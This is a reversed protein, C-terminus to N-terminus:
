TDHGQVAKESTYFWTWDFALLHGLKMAIPVTPTREGSEYYAISQWSIGAKKSLAQLTMGQDTRLDRLWDREM